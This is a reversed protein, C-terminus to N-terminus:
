RVREKPRDQKGADAIIVGFIIGVLMSLSGAAFAWMM